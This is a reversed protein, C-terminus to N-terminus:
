IIMKISFKVLFLRLTKQFNLNNSSDSTADVITQKNEQDISVDYVTLWKLEKLLNYSKEPIYVDDWNITIKTERAM